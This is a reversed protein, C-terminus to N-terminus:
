IDAALPVKEPEYEEDVVWKSMRRVPELGDHPGMNSFQGAYGLSVTRQAGQLTLQDRLERRRSNPYVGVTQTYANVTDIVDELADVVLTQLKKIDM